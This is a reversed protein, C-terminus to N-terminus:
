ITQLSLPLSLFFELIDLSTQLPWPGFNTKAVLIVFLLSSTFLSYFLLFTFSLHPVLRCLIPQWYKEDRSRVKHESSMPKRPSDLVFSVRCDTLIRKFEYRMGYVIGCNLISHSCQVEPCMIVKQQLSKLM